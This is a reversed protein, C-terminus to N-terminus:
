TVGSTMGSRHGSRFLSWRCRGITRGHRGATLLVSGTRMVWRGVPDHNGALSRPTRAFFLALGHLDPRWARRSSSSAVSRMILEVLASPSRRPCGSREIDQLGILQDLVVVRVRDRCHGATGVAVDDQDHRGPRAPMSRSVRLAHYFRKGAEEPRATPVGNEDGCASLLPAADQRRCRTEPRRYRTRM